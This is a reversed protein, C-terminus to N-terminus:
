RVLRVMRRELELDELEPLALACKLLQALPVVAPWPEREEVPRDGRVLLEGDM